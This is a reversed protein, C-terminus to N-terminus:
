QCYYITNTIEGMFSFLKARKRPPSTITDAIENSEPLIVNVNNILAQRLDAREGETCWLLKFRPDLMAAMQFLELSEYKTLRKDVSSKLTKVMKCQYKDSLARMEAKLGRICPIVLSATVINQGQIMDTASEFPTLIESLEVLINRDYKTLKQQYDITDLIDEKIRLLSRIMM